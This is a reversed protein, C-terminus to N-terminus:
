AAQALAPMTAPQIGAIAWERSGDNPKVLHWVEDFPQAAAGAEEGILGHFRVSVIQRDDDRAVDLVEADVRAVDTQQAVNGREQLDLKLHAFMEPTTFARLDAVDGGDNAAQLRIFIMKAVREFAPADFDAPLHSATPAPDIRNAAFGAAPSGFSAAPSPSPSAGAFSLNSRPTAPAFRRMLFRIAVIAVVGLLLLMVINGFEAGFGLHSMLAAIGLGAALGAIPGLWSRKPAVAAAAGATTAPQATPAAPRAPVAQPAARPPLSRQMGIAGGGGIRRAEAVLPLTATAAFVLALALALSRM